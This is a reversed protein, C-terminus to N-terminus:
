YAYKQVCYSYSKAFTEVIKGSNQDKMSEIM